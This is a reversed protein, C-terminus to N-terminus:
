AENAYQRIKQDIYEQDHGYSRKRYEKFMYLVLPAKELIVRIQDPTLGCQRMYAICGVPDSFWRYYLWPGNKLDNRIVQEGVEAGLLYFVQHLRSRTQEIGLLAAGKYIPWLLEPDSFKSCLYTAFEKVSNQSILLWEPNEGYLADVDRESVGFTEEMERKAALVQSYPMNLYSGVGSLEKSHESKWPSAEFIKQAEALTRFCDDSPLQRNASLEVHMQELDRYGYCEEAFIQAQSEPLGAEILKTIFEMFLKEYTGNVM